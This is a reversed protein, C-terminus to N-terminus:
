GPLDRRLAVFAAATAVLASAVAAWFSLLDLESTPWGLVGLASTVPGRFRTDDGVLEGLGVGLLTFLAASSGRAISGAAVGVVGAACVTVAVVAFAVALDGPRDLRMAAADHRVAGAVVWATFTLASLAVGLAVTALLQAGLVRHRAPTVLWTLTATRWRFEGAAVQVGLAMLLYGLLLGSRARLGNWTAEPLAGAGWFGLMPIQLLLFLAVAGRQGRNTSIKFFETRVLTGLGAPRPPPAPVPPRGRTRRRVRM